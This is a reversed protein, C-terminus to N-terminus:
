WYKTGRGNLDLIRQILKKDEDDYPNRKKNLRQLCLLMTLNAKEKKSVLYPKILELFRRVRKYGAIRIEIRKKWTKHPPYERKYYAIHNAILIEEVKDILSDETNTVTVKPSVYFSNEKLRDARSYATVTICGEGDVIGGLWSLDCLSEQQNDRVESKQM